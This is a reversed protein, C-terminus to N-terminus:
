YPPYVATLTNVHKFRQQWSSTAKSPISILKFSPGFSKSSTTETPCPCAKTSTGAERDCLQTCKLYYLPPPSVSFYTLFGWMYQISSLLFKFPSQTSPPAFTNMGHGQERKFKIAGCLWYFWNLQGKQLYEKHQTLLCILNWEKMNEMMSNHWQWPPDTNLKYCTLFPM